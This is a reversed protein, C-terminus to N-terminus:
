TAAGHGDRRGGRPLLAVQAHAAVCRSCTRPTPRGGTAWRPPRPRPSPSGPRGPATTRRTASGTSARLRRGRRRVARHPGVVRRRGPRSVVLVDASRATSCRSRSATSCGATATRRRPSAARRRHRGRRGARLARVGAVTTGDAVGPLLLESRRPAAPLPSCAAPSCSRRSSRSRRSCGGSRSPSSPWRSRAPAWAATRRPSRCASCAWRPSGAGCGRTGARPGERDRRPPRRDDRVHEGLLRRVADRLATQEDDLEFDMDDARRLWDSGSSRAPSSRGSCRTPAATSRPRATTSTARRRWGPGSRAGGLRRRGRLRRRRPRRPRRAARHRGAAARHRAAQAGVVGPAAQRRRLEGRRAARHARARAAREGARRVPRRRVPRRARDQRRAGQGPRARAQDLRRARRRGARQRAPVQRLDLGQEGRRRPQEVPVRVDEFFVENVEHGGDILKIPRVTLGPSTMDILLFSIGTQKKPADPDTRVLTFIWDGYQGLTTWTKQGNVVYDDGDRVAATRLSALDSGADPESFGQSWWIDLNATAPLFREKQEQSGFAAIVPGVM